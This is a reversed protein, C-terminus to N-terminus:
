TDTRLLGLWDVAPLGSQANFLASTKLQAVNPRKGASSSTCKRILQVAHKPCQGEQEMQSLAPGWLEENQVPHPRESADILTWRFTTSPDLIEGFSHFGKMEAASCKMWGYLRVQRYLDCGYALVFLLMGFSFIDM